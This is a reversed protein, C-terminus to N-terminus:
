KDKTKKCAPIPQTCFLPVTMMKRVDYAMSRRSSGCRSADIESSKHRMEKCMTFIDISPAKCESPM